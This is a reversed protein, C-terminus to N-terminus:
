KLGQTEIHTSKVNYKQWLFAVPATTQLHLVFMIIELKLVILILLHLFEGVLCM